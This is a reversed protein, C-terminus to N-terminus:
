LGSGQASKELVAELEEWRLQPEIPANKEQALRIHEALLEQGLKILRRPPGESKLAAQVIFAAPDVGEPLHRFLAKFSAAGAQQVRWELMELLAQPEWLLRVESAQSPLPGLPGRANEPTFLKLYIKRAALPGMIQMLSKLHPVIEEPQFRTSAEDPVEVLFYYQQFSSLRAEAMTALLEAEDTLSPPRTGQAGQQINEALHMAVPRDLGVGSLYAALDGLRHKHMAFLRTLARRQRYPTEAFTQPNRALFDLVAQVLASTLMRWCTVAAEDPKGEPFLALRVPFTDVQGGIHDLGLATTMCTHALLLLAATRGSGSAGFIVTPELAKMADWGPPKVFLQPLLPDEEAREPGFPNFRLDKGSEIWATIAPSDRRQAKDPWLEPPSLPKHQIAAEVGELSAILEPDTWNEDERLKKLDQCQCYAEYPETAALVERILNIQALRVHKRTKDLESRLGSERSYKSTVEQLKLKAEELKGQSPLTRIHEIEDLQAQKRKTGEQWWQWGFGVLAAALALMPTTPGFVLDWFHRWWANYDEELRVELISPLKQPRGDPGYIEVTVSVSIPLTATPARRIYLVAPKDPPQGSEVMVQPAVPM